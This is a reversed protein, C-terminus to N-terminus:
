QRSIVHVSWFICGNQLLKKKNTKNGTWQCLWGRLLSYSPCWHPFGVNLPESSLCHVYFLLQGPTEGNAAKHFSFFLVFFCSARTMAALTQKIANPLCFRLLLISCSHELFVVAWVIPPVASIATLQDNEQAKQCNSQKLKWFYLNQHIYIPSNNCQLENGCVPIWAM